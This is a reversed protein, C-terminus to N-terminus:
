IGKKARMARREHVVVNLSQPLVRIEQPTMGVLDGDVQIELAPSSAIKVSKVQWHAVAHTANRLDAQKDQILRDLGTMKGALQILSEIDMRKLLFVDLKGDSINVSPALTLRGVGITGVNAVVCAVGSAKITERGDLLLEYDAEPMTGHSSKLATWIYAWKGVHDKLDRSAQVASVELGCGLRLLFPHDGMMGVDIRRTAFTEGKLLECADTLRSPLSLEAAVLNGTGGGLILLPVDTGLLGTAVDKVTGDGGYVAVVESGREIAQRALRAGDGIEHTVSVDWRIGARRFVHNVIGLVPVRRSPAPNVILHVLKPRHHKELKM